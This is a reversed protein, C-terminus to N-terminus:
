FIEKLIRYIDNKNLIVANNEIREKNFSENAIMDLEELKINYDRLRLSVSEKLAYYVRDWFVDMNAIGMTRCLRQIKNKIKGINIELLAKLTMSCAVGHPINYRATLPYSIAHAAATKTNSFALGANISALVLKSRIDASIDIKINLINDFIIRISEYAFYDSIPNSHKNWLAEFSHSLSDLTSSFSINIPLSAFLAIDYLAYDPLLCKDSLSTKKHKLKNWITAWTTLESSSGHTTPCAIFLPRESKINNLCMLDEIQSGKACHSMIVAKATDIVSGGGIAIVADAKFDKFFSIANNCSTYSPNSEIETFVKLEHKKLSKKLKRFTETKEFRNSCVIMVNHENAELLAKIKEEINVNFIIRAPNYYSWKM